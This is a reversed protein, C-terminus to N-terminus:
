LAAELILRLRRPPTHPERRHEGVYDKVMQVGEAARGVASMGLFLCYVALDHGGKDRAVAHLTGLSAIQSDALRRDLLAKAGMLLSQAYVRMRPVPSTCLAKLEADDMIAADPPQGSMVDLAAGLFRLSIRTAQDDVGSRWMAAERHWRRASEIDDLDIHTQILGDIAPM